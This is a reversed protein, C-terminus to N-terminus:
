AMLQTSMVKFAMSNTSAPTALLRVNGGSIDVDFTALATDTAVQGYETSVATTGDHTVLLETIYRETATSDTVCVLLKAGTYDTTSFSYVATQTTATTSATAATMDAKDNFNLHKSSSLSLDGDSRLTMNGTTNTTFTMDNTSMNYTIKGIDNDAEKGFHISALNETLITLGCNSNNELLLEDANGAAGGSGSGSNQTWLHLLADPSSTGGIGVKDNTGDVLFMNSKNNSEVRFNITSGDENFVAEDQQFSALQKSDTVSYFSLGYGTAHNNNRIEWTPTGARTFRLYPTTGSLELQANVTSGTGIGVFGTDTIRVKETPTAAAASTAFILDTNNGTSQAEGLIAAGRTNSETGGIQIGQARGTNGSSSSTFSAAYSGNALINDVTDYASIVNFTTRPSSTKVGVKDNTGDVALMSASGDSKVIFDRADQNNNITVDSDADFVFSAQGANDYFFIDGSDNLL